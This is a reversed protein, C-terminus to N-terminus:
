SRFFVPVSLDKPGTLHWWQFTCDIPGTIKVPGKKIRCQWPLPDGRTEAFLM